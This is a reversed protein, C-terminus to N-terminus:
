APAGDSSNVHWRWWRASAAGSAAHCAALINRPIM